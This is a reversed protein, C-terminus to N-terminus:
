GNAAPNGPPPYGLRSMVIGSPLRFFDGRQLNVSQLAADGGGGSISDCLSLIKFDQRLRGELPSRYGSEIGLTTLWERRPLPAGTRLGEGLWLLMLHGDSHKAWFEGGMQHLRNVARGSEHFALGMDSSSVTIVRHNPFEDRRSLLNIALEYGTYMSKPTNNDLLVVTPQQKDSVEIHKKADDIELFHHLNHEEIGVLGTLGANVWEAVADSDEAYIVSVDSPNKVPEFEFM